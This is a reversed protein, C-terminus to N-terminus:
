PLRSESSLSGTDIILHDVTLTCDRNRIAMSTQLLIDIYEIRM